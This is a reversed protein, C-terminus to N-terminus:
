NFLDGSHHNSYLMVQLLTPSYAPGFYSPFDSDNIGQASTLSCWIEPAILEYTETHLNVFIICSDSDEHLKCIIRFWAKERLNFCIAEFNPTM